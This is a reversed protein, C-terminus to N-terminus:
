QLMPLFVKSNKELLKRLEFNQDNKPLLRGEPLIFPFKSSSTSRKELRTPSVGMGPAPAYTSLSTPAAAPVPSPSTKTLNRGLYTM